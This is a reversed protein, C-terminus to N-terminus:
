GLDGGKMRRVPNKCPRGNMCCSFILQEFARTHAAIDWAPCALLRQRLGRKLSLLAQRDSTMRLALAVFDEDNKAVWEPLGAACMFSASMRSVFHEGIQCLVPVGMWMAQLSTTGGNYPVPDLAIDVDAYEAMMVDLGTPGRLEVRSLDVGLEVLRRRVLQQAGADIFSPTKLLLRSDPVAALVSAWLRLTRQTLKSLTNFSGFTLPRKIFSSDYAPYTYQTEPAYCFVTGPLRVIRESYLAECGEPTVIADGILFDMNPVGTSGPYGLYTIQVPAARQAFLGVRQQGTHGALDLLVDIGDADIRRALQIDSLATAEVWHECRRQALRTQEDYSVGTFYVFLEIRSRDLERLLPQMFINVPHQHHFDATVLGLRLRRGDLPTRVFSDVRRANKGLPKFLQRHLAAVGQANLSDSYLASMAASSAMSRGATGPQAALERYIALATDTDGRKSAITARLTQAGAVPGLAEAKHLMQEAEDMQWCQSLLHALNWRANVSTPHLEVARRLFQLAQQWLNLRFVLAGLRTLTEESSTQSAQVFADYADDQRGQRWLAEGLDILFESREQKPIVSAALAAKLLQESLEPYGAELAYQGLRHAVKGPAGGHTQACHLGQWAAATAMDSNGLQLLVRTIALYAEHRHPACDVARQYASVAQQLEGMQRCLHGAELWASYYDPELRLVAAFAERAHMWQGLKVLCRARGLHASAFLPSMLCTREYAALAGQVDGERWAANGTNFVWASSEDVAQAGRTQM